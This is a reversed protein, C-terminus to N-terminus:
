SLINVKFKDIAMYLVKRCQKSTKLACIKSTKVKYYFIKRM